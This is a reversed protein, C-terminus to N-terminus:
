RFSSAASANTQRVYESETGNTLGASTKTSDLPPTLAAWQCPRQSKWALAELAPQFWQEGAYGFVACGHHTRVDGGDVEVGKLKHLWGRVSLVVVPSIEVPAQGKAPLTNWVMLFLSPLILGVGDLSPM